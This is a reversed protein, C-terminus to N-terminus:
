QGKKFINKCLCWLSMQNTRIKACTWKKQQQAPQFWGHGVSPLGQGGGICTVGSAGGVTGFGQWNHETCEGLAPSLM